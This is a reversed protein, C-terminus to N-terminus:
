KLLYEVLQTKIHHNFILNDYERKSGDHGLNIKVEPRHLYAGSYDITSRIGSPSFHSSTKFNFLLPVNRIIVSGNAIVQLDCTGKFSGLHIITKYTSKNFYREKFLDRMELMQVNLEQENHIVVSAGGGDIGKKFETDRFNSLTFLDALPHHTLLYEPKQLKNISNKMFSSMIRIYDKEYNLGEIYEKVVPSDFGMFMDILKVNEVCEKLFAIDSDLHRPLYQIERLKELVLNEMKGPFIQCFEQFTYKKGLKQQAM